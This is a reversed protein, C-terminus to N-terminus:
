SRAEYELEPGFGTAPIEDIRPLDPDDTAFQSIARLRRRYRDRESFADRLAGALDEILVDIEPALRRLNLPFRLLALELEDNNKIAM